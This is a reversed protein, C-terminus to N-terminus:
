HNTLLEERILIQCNCKEVADLFIIEGVRDTEITGSKPNKISLISGRVDAEVSSYEFALDTEEMTCAILKLNNCYCFPQTGIIKCNILTLGESFWGLYEGRIVSNRVTVNKSHWFADKTNLESNSIQLNETYQFSYKGTMRLETIEINRSDFLFYESDIVSNTIALNQCKWGFELSVATLKDIQIDSCQRLCKTGHINCDTIRGKEAYWIPARTKEDMCSGMLEFDKVHWLPYRLSFSCDKVLIEHAEKLASEGDAAGAFVCDIVEANQLGYLAREEEYTQKIIQKRM